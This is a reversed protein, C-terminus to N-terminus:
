STRRGTNLVPKSGWALQKIGFQSSVCEVRSRYISADEVMFGWSSMNSDSWDKVFGHAYVHM